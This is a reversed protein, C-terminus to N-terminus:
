KGPARPPPLAPAALRRREGAAHLSKQPLPLPVLPLVSAGRPPPQSPSEAYPAAGGVLAPPDPDVGAGGEGDEERQHNELSLDTCGSGSAGDRTLHVRPISGDHTTCKEIPPAYANPIHVGERVVDRPTTAEDGSSQVCAWTRGTKEQLATTSPITV